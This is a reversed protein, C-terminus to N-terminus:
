RRGKAAIDDLAQGILVSSLGRGRYTPEIVAHTISLHSGIVEYVLLGAQQGDVLLEYYGNSPRDVVLANSPDIPSPMTNNNPSMAADKSAAQSTSVSGAGPM